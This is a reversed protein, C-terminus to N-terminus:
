VTPTGAPPRRWAHLLVERNASGLRRSIGAEAELQGPLTEPLVSSKTTFAILRGGPRLLGESRRALEEPPFTARSIIVDCGRGKDSRFDEVTASEVTMNCTSCERLVSRLFSARKRRPELLVVRSEPCVIALPVGPIGAGSGVDVIEDRIYKNERIFAGAVLGDALHREVIERRDRVSVLNMRERWFDLTQVYRLLEAIQAESLELGSEGSCRELLRREAADTTM